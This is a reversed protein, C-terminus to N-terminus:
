TSPKSLETTASRLPETCALFRISIPDRLAVDLEHPADSNSKRAPSLRTHTLCTHPTRPSSHISCFLRMLYKLPALRACVLCLRKPPMIAPERPPPMSSRAHPCSSPDNCTRGWPDRVVRTGFPACRASPPRSVWKPSRAPGKLFVQAARLPALRTGFVKRLRCAVRPTWVLQQLPHKPSKSVRTEATLNHDWM